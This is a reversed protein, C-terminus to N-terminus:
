AWSVTRKSLRDALVGAPLSFCMLPDHTMALLIVVQKWANDNFTGIAQSVLIGRLTHREAADVGPSHIDNKM